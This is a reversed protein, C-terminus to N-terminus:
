GHDRDGEERLVILADVAVCGRDCILMPNIPSIRGPYHCRILNRVVSHGIKGSTRSAGIVAIHAPQFLPRLDERLRGPARTAVSVTEKM